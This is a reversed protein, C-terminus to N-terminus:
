DPSRTGGLPVTARPWRLWRRLTEGFLKRKDSESVESTYRLYNVAESYNHQRRTRTYDSGWMLRDPGFAEIVRHLQPWLGAFPYPESTLAPLGSFKVAVNPYAALDLIEPLPEFLAPGPTGRPPHLLGLHDVILVLDPFRRAIGHFLRPEGAAYMCVPVGHQAAAAFWPDFGGENFKRVHDPRLPANAIIRIGLVGPRTRIAALVNDIDPTDPDLRVIGAFRDPRVTAAFECLRPVDHVVAADVGVADMAALASEIVAADRRRQGDLDADDWELAPLPGHIQADVIEM